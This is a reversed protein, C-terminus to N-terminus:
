LILDLIRKVEDTVESRMTIERDNTKDLIRADTVGKLLKVVAKISRDTKIEIYKCIALAMFCILIHTKITHKKFHYIPRMKLDSKSIRFAQEIHWLNKYQGIIDQYSINDNLNSYYGKIGLLLNTKRILQHNLEYNNKDNDKHKLFKARKRAPAPDSSNNLLYNAKNIQKEMDIKDKRYRNAAFHCILNGKSTKIKIAADDQQNLDKSIQEIIPLSLNAVRAGV